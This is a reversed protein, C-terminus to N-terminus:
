MRNVNEFCSFWEKKPSAVIDERFMKENGEAIIDLADDKDKTL